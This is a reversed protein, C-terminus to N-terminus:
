RHLRRETTVRHQVLADALVVGSSVKPLKKVPITFGSCDFAMPKQMSGVPPKLDLNWAVMMLVGTAGAIWFRRSRFM